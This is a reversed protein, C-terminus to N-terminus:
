CLKLERGDFTIKGLVYLVDLTLLFQSLDDFNSRLEHYLEVPSAPTYLRRLIIPLKSLLSANYPITKNPVIM